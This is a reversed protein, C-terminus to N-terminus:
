DSSLRRIEEFIPLIFSAIAAVVDALDVPAKSLENKTVFAKWQAVKVDDAAFEDSLGVPIGEPIKTQRRKFTEEIAVRLTERDLDVEKLLAFVHYYDKMRSNPMGKSVMTEVKEAIVTEPTYSLVRPAPFGLLVPFEIEVAEPTVADGLGLDIQLPIRTADGIYANFKVRLGQYAEDERMGEMSIKGIDFRLSDDVEIMCIETLMERITDESNDAYALMDMDRTPKYYEGTWHIILFAGKLVLNRRNRSKELRRLFGEYAFRRLILSHDEGREKSINLLRDLVSQALNKKRGKM